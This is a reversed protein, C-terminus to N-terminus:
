KPKRIALHPDSKNKALVLFNIWGMACNSIPVALSIWNQKALLGCCIGVGGLCTSKDGLLTLAVTILVM